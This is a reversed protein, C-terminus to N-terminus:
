LGMLIGALWGLDDLKPFDYDPWHHAIIPQIIFYWALLFIMLAWGTIKVGGRVKKRTVEEKGGQGDSEMVTENKVFINGISKGLKSLVNM